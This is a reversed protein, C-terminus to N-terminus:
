TRIKFEHESSSRILHFVMEHDEEWKPYSFDNGSESLHGFDKILRDISSSISDAERFSRLKELTTCQDRIMHPLKEIEKRISDIVPAPSFAALEPFDPRFDIKDYDLHLKKLKSKLRKHHMTMLMPVVINLYALKKGTNFLMSYIEPYSDLSLDKRLMEDFHSCKAKLESYETLFTKEFRMKAALFKIIRFTHRLTRLGPKFSHGANDDRIMLQELSDASMGFESFIKGLAATNLYMQYYFQKVLDEPKVDLPGTIEELLQIWTGNVMPINVSWVLPKIQGPLMEKAMKNSYIQMEKRGTIRRLQLYYLQKGDYVWEIDIHNGYYRRLRATDASVQRIVSFLPYQGNGEFILDKRIRWRLPTYGKQVLDEGAGEVAEIVIENQNTVPNRSFSVGALLSPIM